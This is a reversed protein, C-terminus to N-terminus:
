PTPTSRLRCTWMTTARKKSKQQRLKGRLPIPPSLGMRARKLSPNQRQLNLSRLLDIFLAIMNQGGDHPTTGSVDMSEAQQEMETDGNTGQTSEKEEEQQTPTTESQEAGGGESSGTGSQETEGAAAGKGSGNDGPDMAPTEQQEQSNSPADKQETTASPETEMVEAETMKEVLTASKVRFIGHINMRVKIKM